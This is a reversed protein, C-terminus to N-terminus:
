IINYGGGQLDNIKIVDKDEVSNKPTRINLSLGQKSFAMTLATTGLNLNIYV